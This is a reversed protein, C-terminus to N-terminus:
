SKRNTNQPGQSGNWVASPMLDVHKCITTSFFFPIYVKKKWHFFNVGTGEGPLSSHINNLLRYYKVIRHLWVEGLNGLSKLM